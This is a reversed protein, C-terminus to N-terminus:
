WCFIGFKRPTIGNKPEAVMGQQIKTSTLFSPAGLLDYLSHEPWMDRPSSSVRLESSGRWIRLPRSIKTSSPCDKCVSCTDLLVKVLGRSSDRPLPPMGDGEATSSDFDRASAPDPEPEALSRKRAASVPDPEPEALSRRRLPTQRLAEPRRRFRHRLDCPIDLSVDDEAGCCHYSRATESEDVTSSDSFRPSVEKQARGAHMEERLAKLEAHSRALLTNATRVDKDYLQLLYNKKEDQSLPWDFAM